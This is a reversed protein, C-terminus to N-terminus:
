PLAVSSMRRIVKVSSIDLRDLTESGRHVHIAHLVLHQYSPDFNFTLSGFDEVGTQNVLLVM